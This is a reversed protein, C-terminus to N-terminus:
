NTIIQVTETSEKVRLPAQKYIMACTMCIVLFICGEFSAHKDWILINIIVTLFKCVNGVITFSTASLHKRCALSFYSMAIGLVISVSLTVMNITTTQSHITHLYRHRKGSLALVDLLLYMVLFLSAWTNMYLVREWNNKTEVSDVIHKIYIQDFCFIIYWVFVWIYAKVNFNSDTLSYGVSSLFMGLISVFSRLSPLERNLFMWDLVSIVIPTSNRFIIFTEVNANELIKLNSFLTLMFAFSVVFFRKFNNLNPETLFFSVISSAICQFLLVETTAKLFEVCLKNVILLTSSCLIFGTVVLM